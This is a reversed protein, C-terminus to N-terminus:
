NFQDMSEGPSNTVCATETLNVDPERACSQCSVQSRPDDDEPQFDKLGDFCSHGTSACHRPPLRFPCRRLAQMQPCTRMSQGSCALRACETRGPPRFSTPCQIACATAPNCSIGGAGLSRPSARRIGPRGAAPKGKAAAKPYRHICVRKFSRVRCRPQLPQLLSLCNRHRDRLSFRQGVSSPKAIQM